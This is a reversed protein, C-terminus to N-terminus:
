GVEIEAVPLGSKMVEEEIQRQMNKADAFRVGRLKTRERLLADSIKLLVVFDCDLVVTALVPCGPKIRVHERALRIMTRGIEETWPVRNVYEIEEKTLQPYLLEDMDCAGPILKQLTSKGTSTTGVIVVRKDKNEDLIKQLKAIDM